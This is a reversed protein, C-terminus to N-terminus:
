GNLAFKNSVEQSNKRDRRGGGKGDEKKKKRECYDLFDRCDKSNSGMCTADPTEHFWTVALKRLIRYNM